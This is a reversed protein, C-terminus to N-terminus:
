EELLKEIAGTFDEEPHAGVLSLAIKGTKDIFFATPIPNIGYNQLTTVSALGVPYNIQYQSLFQRFYDISKGDNLEVSLGMMELGKSHYAQYIKVLSPLEMRCPGCWTAWFDILVVKGRLQSLTLASGSANIFDAGIEPAATRSNKSILDIGNGKSGCGFSILFLALLAFFIKKM